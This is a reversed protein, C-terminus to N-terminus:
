EIIYASVIEGIYLTHYDGNKYFKQDIETTLTEKPQDQKYIVKCEITLPFEKFGPVSIVEPEEITLGMDKIKDTDRGSKTGCYALIKKDFEGIPVNITFEGNEELMQKTYRSERVFLIFVPRGWEIGLTGWGITMTNVHDNAKTTALIGPNMAQVIQGAYDWVNVKRKMIMGGFPKRKDYELAQTFALGVRNVLQTASRIIM